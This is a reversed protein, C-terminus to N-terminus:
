RPPTERLLFEIMFANFALGREDAVAAKAGGLVRLEADPRALLFHEASAVPVLRNEVGWVLLAPQRTLPWSAGVPYDLSGSAVSYLSIDSRPRELNASYVAVLEPSINAPDSYAEAVLYRFVGEFSSREGYVSAQLFGGSRALAEYRSVIDPLSWVPGYGSPAVLVMAGILEPRRAAIDIAFAASRGAALVTVPEDFGAEIFLGLLELYLEPTLREAARDSRGFGFMDLAVVRYGAELLAVTNRRWSTYSDAGPELAHLLLVPRGQGGAEFYLAREGWLWSGAEQLGPLRPQSLDSPVEIQPRLQPACAILIAAVLTATLLLCVVRKMNM